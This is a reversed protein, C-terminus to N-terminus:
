RFTQEWRSNASLTVVGRSGYKAAGAAVLSLGRRVQELRQDLRDRVHSVDAGARFIGDEGAILINRDRRLEFHIMRWSRAIRHRRCIDIGIGAYLKIWIMQYPPSRFTRPLKAELCEIYQNIDIPM